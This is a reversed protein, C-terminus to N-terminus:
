AASSAAAASFLPTSSDTIVPSARSLPPPDRHHQALEPEEGPRDASGRGVPQHGRDLPGGDLPQGQDGPRHAAPGPHLLARRREHLHHPDGLRDGRVLGRPQGVEDVQAVRGGAAHHRAPARQALDGGGLGLGEDAEEARADVGREVALLEGLADLRRLVEGGAADDVRDDAGVVDALHQVAREVHQLAGRYTRGSDGSGLVLRDRVHVRPVRDGPGATRVTGAYAAQEPVGGGVDDREAAGALALLVGPQQHRQRPEALRRAHEQALVPAALRGVVRHSRPRQALGPAAEAKGGLEPQRQDRHDVGLAGREGGIGLVAPEGALDGAAQGLEDREGSRGQAQHEALAVAAPRQREQRGVPHDGGLVGPEGRQRGLAGARDHM